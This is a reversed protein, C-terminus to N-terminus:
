DNGFYYKKFLVKKILNKLILKSFYRGGNELSVKIIEKGQTSINRRTLTNNHDRYNALTKNIYYPETVKLYQIIFDYDFVCKLNTNLNGTKLLLDSKFFTAPQRIIDADHNLLYNLDYVHTKDNRILKKEYDVYNLNGYILGAGSEKISENVNFLADPEYYDDSNIWAVYDGTILKLGKNIADASGGDKESIWKVTKYKKLINVTDDNSGGDIIIYEFNKYTQNLVSEITDVIFHANNFSPTIISFKIDM